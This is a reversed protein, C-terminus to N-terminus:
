GHRAKYWVASSRVAGELTAPYPGDVYDGVASVRATVECRPRALAPTCAFTARKEAVVRLLEGATWGLESRAQALVDAGTAELGREVCPAAASISFAFLGPRHGIAGLDFVFQAPGEGLMLMPAPLRAEAHQVYATVIPEFRLARAQRAWAADLTEILRAAEQSPTAVVVHDFDDLEGLSTIRRGLHLQAGRERLWAEAPRALLEALPVRPLLLDASGPGSFLADRLVRLFVSASAERMPTNLAAVCLPEILETQVVRPLAACLESVAMNPACRFGCALWRAARAVLALRASFPWRPHAFVGRAFAVLPSGPPLRLGEDRPGRLHLPSRFLVTEPDVGVSRMLALSEGYAGILIHQGSDLGDDLSRARGGLRPAMEFLEVRHGAATARIAAALGAWGGGVVAFRSM